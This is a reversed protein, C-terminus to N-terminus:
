SAAPNTTALLSGVDRAPGRGLVPAMLHMAKEEVEETSMPNEPTGRVSEVHERFTEGSQTTVEVIRQRPIQAHSLSADPVLEVRAKMEVVRKEEM